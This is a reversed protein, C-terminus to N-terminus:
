NSVDQLLWEGPPPRPQIDTRPDAMGGREEGEPLLGRFPPPLHLGALPSQRASDLPPSARRRTGARPNVPQGLPTSEVCLSRETKARSSRDGLQVRSADSVPGGCMPPSGGPGRVRQAASPIRPPRAHPQLVRGSRSGRPPM